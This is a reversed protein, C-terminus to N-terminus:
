PTITLITVHEHPRDFSDVLTWGCAQYFDVAEDGTAVWFQQYGHQAAAWTMLHRLLKRGIGQGRLDPRVIMGMIWPSRDMREPAEFEGLAVAGTAAGSEDTAVFTVPLDRQGSEQRTIDVWETLDASEPWHGWEAWRMHGIDPILGPEDALLRIQVPEAKDSTM